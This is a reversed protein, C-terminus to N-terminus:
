RRKVGLRKEIVECPDKVADVLTRASGGAIM